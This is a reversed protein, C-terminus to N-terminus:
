AAFLALAGILWLHLPYFGYFSCKAFRGGPGREGSYLALFPLVTLFLFESNFALMSLTKGVTPYIQVAPVFLLLSLAVYLVLRLRGQFFWAILMLPLLVVGGEAFLVGGLAAAVAALVGAARQWVPRAAGAAWDLLALCLVGLTLFINNLLHLGRPMAPQNYGWSGAAMFAARGFLRLIYRPRSRTHLLGEVAAYAFWAGVCRTATHLLGM